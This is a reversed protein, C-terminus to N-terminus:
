QIMLFREVMGGTYPDIKIEGSIVPDYLLGGLLLKVPQTDPLTMILRRLDAVTMPGRYPTSEHHSM